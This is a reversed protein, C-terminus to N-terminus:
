ASWRSRARRIGENGAQFPRSIGFRLPVVSPRADPDVCRIDPPAGFVTMEAGVKYGLRDMDDAIRELRDYHSRITEALDDLIEDRGGDKEVYDM